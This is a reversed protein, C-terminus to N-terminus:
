GNLSQGIVRFGAEAAKFKDAEDARDDERFGTMKLVELAILDIAGADKDALRALEPRSFALRRGAEDCLGAAAVAAISMGGALYEPVIDESMARVYVCAKWMPIELRRPPRDSADLIAEVTELNRGVM